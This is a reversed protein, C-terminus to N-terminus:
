DHSIEGLLTEWCWGTDQEPLGYPHRRAEEDAALTAIYAAEDQESWIQYAPDAALQAQWNLQMATLM